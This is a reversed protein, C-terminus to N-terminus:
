GVAKLHAWTQALGWPPCLDQATKRAASQSPGHTPILSLSVLWDGRLPSVPGLDQFCLHSPRAFEGGPFKDGPPVPFSDSRNPSDPRGQVSPTPPLGLARLRQLVPSSAEPIDQCQLLLVPLLRM